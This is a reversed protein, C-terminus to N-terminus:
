CGGCLCPDPCVCPICLCPCTCPSSCMGTGGSTNYATNRRNINEVAQRYEVNNPDMQVARNLDDIGQNYWGCRINILGSLYYWEANQELNELMKKAEAIRNMSILMRVNGYSANTYTQQRNYSTNTSSYGRSGSQQSGTNKNIIMDYAKNIEKMKEAALDALPNNVYKDPHYKKVLERYANKITEEDDTPNVGLVEYPNM